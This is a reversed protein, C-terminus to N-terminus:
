RVQLIVIKWCRAKTYDEDFHVVVIYDNLIIVYAIFDGAGTMVVWKNDELIDSIIIKSAEIAYYKKHTSGYEVM